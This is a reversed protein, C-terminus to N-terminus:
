ENNKWTHFPSPPVQPRFHRYGMPGCADAIVLPDDPEYSFCSSDKIVYKWAFIVGSWFWCFWDWLSAPSIQMLQCTEDRHFNCSNLDGRRRQDMFWHFVACLLAAIPIKEGYIAHKRDKPQPFFCLKELSFTVPAAQGDSAVSRKGDCRRGPQHCDCHSSFQFVM